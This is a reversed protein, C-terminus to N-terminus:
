TGLLTEKQEVFEAETLVGQDRLKRLQTLQDQTDMRRKGAYYSGGGIAAARLL